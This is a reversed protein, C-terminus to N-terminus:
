IVCVCVQVLYATPVGAVVLGIQQPPTNIVALEVEAPGRLRLALLLARLHAGAAVAAHVAAPTVDEALDTPDFLVRDQPAYVLVGETTAAAFGDATPSLAVARTRLQPRGIFGTGPLGSAGAASGTTNSLLLDDADDPDDRILGMPGADTITKTNVDDLVGELARNVSTQAPNCVLPSNQQPQNTTNKKWSPKKM